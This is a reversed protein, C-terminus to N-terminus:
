MACLITSSILAYSAAMAAVRDEVSACVSRLGGRRYISSMRSGDVIELTVAVARTGFDLV